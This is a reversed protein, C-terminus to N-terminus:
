QFLSIFDDFQKIKNEIKVIIRTFDSIFDFFAENNHNSNHV